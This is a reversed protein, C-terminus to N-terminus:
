LVMDLLPEMDGRGWYVDRGCIRCENNKINAPHIEVSRHFFFHKHPTLSNQNYGILRNLFENTALSAVLTTFTVVAPSPNGEGIVYAEDRLAAYQDPNNRRLGESYAIAPNIIGKTILCDNGPFLFSIRGQLDQIEPPDSKVSIVLGMDIIPTLYFYAFRNLLIRGSHDDTCCFIVDSQKLYNISTVHSVWSKAAKISTGLGFDEIHKKLVDVKFMGIDARTAGHLRSLNSEEVRDKDILFIQGIGLRALLTATASGTAGVGVVSVKLNSLDKLLSVGLALRQRDFVESAVFTDTKDSYFLSIRKGIVRIMSLPTHTLDSKWARGILSGNSLMILSAYPRTGGNRNYALQFLGREGEDDVQSFYNVSAPHNHIVLVADSKKEVKKLLNIFHINDWSVQYTESSTLMDDTLLVIEKSLFREEINEVHSRGCIIFAARERGDNRILHQKLGVYHEERLTCSYIM